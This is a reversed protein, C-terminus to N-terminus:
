EHSNEKFIPHTIISLKHQHRNPAPENQTLAYIAENLKKGFALLEDPSAYFIAETYGTFDAGFDREGPQHVYRSFGDLVTLIYQLFYQMHQDPSLNKMDDVGLNPSQQLSYIKEMTGKVSRTEVVHIMDHKLLVRIQRYLTSVPISSLRDAIEQTSLATGSLASLIQLRVPHLILDSKKM